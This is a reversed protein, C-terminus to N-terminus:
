PERVAIKKGNRSKFVILGVAGLMLVIMVLIFANSRSDVSQERPEYLSEVCTRGDPGLAFGAYCSCVAQYQDDMSCQHDCVSVVDCPTEIIVPGVSYIKPDKDFGLDRRKRGGCVPGTCNSISSLCVSVTCHIYISRTPTNVWVFSKFGAKVEMSQYNSVVDIAARDATSPCGSEIIMYKVTDNPNNSPTAWCQSAQLVAGSIGVAAKFYIYDKVQVIPSNDGSQFMTTFNRDRFLSLVIQFQGSVAPNAFSVTQIRPVIMTDVHATRNFTCNFVSM